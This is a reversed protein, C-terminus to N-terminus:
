NCSQLVFRCNVLTVERVYDNKKLAAALQATYEDSKMQYLANNSIDVVLLSPDNAEVKKIIEAASITPTGWTRAPAATGHTAGKQTTM